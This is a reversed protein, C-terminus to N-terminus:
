WDDEDYEDIPNDLEETLIELVVEVLDWEKEEIAERLMDIMNDIDLM